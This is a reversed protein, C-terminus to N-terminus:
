AQGNQHNLSEEIAKIEDRVKAAEEFKEARILEQLQKQLALKEYYQAEQKGGAPRETPQDCHSCSGDKVKGVHHDKGHISQVTPLLRDAFTTYCESCGLRGSKRFDRYSMGCVPCHIVQEASSDWSSGLPMHPSTGFYSHHFDNFFKDLSFDGIDMIERACDRCLHQTTEKNNIVQKVFVTAENKGCKDCLM